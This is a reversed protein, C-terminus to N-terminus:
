RGLVETIKRNMIEIQLPNFPSEENKLMQFIEQNRYYKNMINDYGYFTYIPLCVCYNGTFKIPSKVVKQASKVRPELRDLFLFLESGNLEEPNYYRRYGDGLGLHHGVEHIALYLAGFTEGSFVPYDGGAGLYQNNNLVLVIGDVPYFHKIIEKLEKLENEDTVSAWRGTKEIGIPMSTDLYSFEVDVGKYAGTLINALYGLSKDLENPETYGVPVLLIKYGNAAPFRINEKNLGFYKITEPYGEFVTEKKVDEGAMLKDVPESSETLTCYDHSREFSINCSDKVIQTLSRTDDMANIVSPSSLTLATILSLLKRM